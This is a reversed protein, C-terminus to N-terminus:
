NQEIGSLAIVDEPIKFVYAESNPMLIFRENGVNREIVKAFEPDRNLRRLDTWRLGRFLLEKRRENLVIRLLNEKTKDFESAITNNKLRKSRLRQLVTYAKDEFGTRVLCEALILHLESVSLGNFFAASGNYSGKFSKSGDSNEVFFLSRRLDGDEYLELVDMSVKLVPAYLIRPTTLTSHFIVETNLPRFPFAQSPNLDNYDVLEGGMALAKESYILAEKYNGMTLLVRAMLALASQRDPRTRIISRENLLDIAKSLDDLVQRYSEAVTSRQVRVNFDATLRLPVGKDVASTVSDWHPAFLQLLSYFSYARHFYAQGLVDQKLQESGGSISGQLVGELILNAYYIKEYTFSWDNRPSANYVEPNWIYANQEAITGAANWDSTEIYFDDSAVESYVPFTNNFLYHNLLSQAEHYDSIIVLRKDPKVDLYKVCGFLLVVLILYLIQRM